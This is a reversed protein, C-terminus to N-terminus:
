GQVGVLGAERALEVHRVADGDFGDQGRLFADVGRQRAADEEEGAGGNGGDSDLQGVAAVRM